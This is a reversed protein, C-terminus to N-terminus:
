HGYWLPVSLVCIQSRVSICIGKNWHNENFFKQSTVCFSLVILIHMIKVITNDTNASTTTIIIGTSNTMIFNFGPISIIGTLIQIVKQIESKCALDTDWCYKELIDMKKVSFSASRNFIYSFNIHLKLYDKYHTVVSDTSLPAKVNGLVSSLFPYQLTGSSSVQLRLFIM